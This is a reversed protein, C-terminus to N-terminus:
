VKDPRITAVGAKKHKTNALNIIGWAEVPFLTNTGLILNEYIAYLPNQKKLVNQLGRGKVPTNLGSDLTM